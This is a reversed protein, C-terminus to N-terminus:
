KGMQGNDIKIIESIEKKDVELKKKEAENEIEKKEIKAIEEIKEKIEPKKDNSYYVDYIFKGIGAVCVILSGFILINQLTKMGTSPEYKVTTSSNYIEKLDELSFKSGKFQKIEDIIPTPLIINQEPIEGPKKDKEKQIDKDKQIAKKIDNDINNNNFNGNSFNKLISIAVDFISVNPFEQIKDYLKNYLVKYHDFFIKYYNYVDDITILKNGDICDSGNYDNTNIFSRTSYGNIYNYANLYAGQILFDQYIIPPPQEPEKDPTPQPRPKNLDEKTQPQNIKKQEEEQKQKTEEQQKNYKEQSEKTTKTGQQIDDPVETM